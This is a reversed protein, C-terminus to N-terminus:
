ALELCLLRDRRDWPVVSVFGRRRYLRIAPERWEWVSLRVPRDAVRLAEDILASGVGRGRASLTTWFRKIESVGAASTGVVVIGCDEGDESAVIVRMGLFSEAPHTVEQVYRAPFPDAQSVIGREAKETETQRLYDDLLSSVSTLDRPFSAERLTITSM